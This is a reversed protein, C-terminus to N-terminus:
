LLQVTYVLSAMHFPDVAVRSVLSRCCYFSVLMLLSFFLLRAVPFMTMSFGRSPLLMRNTVIWININLSRVSIIRLSNMSQFSLNNFLYAIDAVVGVWWPTHHVLYLTVPCQQSPLCVVNWYCSKVSKRTGTSQWYYVLVSYDGLSFLKLSTDSVTISIQASWSKKEERWM